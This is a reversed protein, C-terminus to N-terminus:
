KNEDKVEVRSLYGIAFGVFYSFIVAVALHTQMIFPLAFGCYMICVYRVVQKYDIKTKM